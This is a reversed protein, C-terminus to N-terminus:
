KIEKSNNMMMNQQPNMNPNMNNMPFNLNPMGAQQM